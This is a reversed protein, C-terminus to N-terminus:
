GFSSVNLTGDARSLRCHVLGIRQNVPTILRNNIHQILSQYVNGFGDVLKFLNRMVDAKILIFQLVNFLTKVGQATQGAFM